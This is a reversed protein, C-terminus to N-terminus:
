PSPTATDPAPATAPLQYRERLSKASADLRQWGAEPGAHQALADLQAAALEPQGMEAHALALALRAMGTAPHGTGLHGIALDLATEALERAAPAQDQGIRGEALGCLAAVHHISGEGAYRAAMTVAEELLPVADGARELRLLLKGYNNLLAATAASPGFHERRLALAKALLPEAGEANGSALEVAGWNNLTNLADPSHQLDLTSWLQEAAAFAERARDHEGIGFFMVGLNNQVVGATRELPGLGAVEDLARELLAVAAHPDGAARLLQAELLRSELLKWRWREPQKQWFDQARSLLQRAEQSGGQRLKIQALDHSAAMVLAPDVQTTDAGAVRELLPTAAEYDTLLFYLEGLMHLVPAGAAPDRTFQDQVRQAAADLVQAASVQSGGSEGASRFMHLIAQQVAELRAREGLAQDRQHTAERGQWLAAGLGLVLSVMVAVVAAVAGRNQQLWRGIRYGRHQSRAHVVRLDLARQLDACFADISHYRQGPDAALARALIADLDRLLRRQVPLRQWRQAGATAAAPTIDGDAIRRALVAAPLGATRRLAQGTVLRYLVAALGHVDTLTTVEHSVLQEPAAYDPSLPAQRSRGGDQDALRAVGFDILRPRGDGDVLINSPKIDGHVVLRSHAHALAPALEVVLQVRARLDLDRRECWSDVPEGQVHEMVMFPRQSPLLGGDILRAIGPHDLGALIQRESEFRSWATADAGAIVKLAGSQDFQGDARQVRYVQGMGGRGIVGEVRWAGARDGVALLYPDEAEWADPDPELFQESDGVAALLDLVQAILPEPVPQARLWAARQGAPQEWAADFLAEVQRWSDSCPGSGATGALVQQRDGDM